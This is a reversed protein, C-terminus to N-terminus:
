RERNSNGENGDSSERIDLYKQMKFRLKLSHIYSNSACSVYGDKLQRLQQDVTLSAEVCTPWCALVSVIALVAASFRAM